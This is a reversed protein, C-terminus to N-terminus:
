RSFVHLIVDAHLQKVTQIREKESLQMLTDWELIEDIGSAFNLVPHTYSNGIFVIKVNKFFEKLLNVMPLTLIVDGIKDTRSIIITKQTKM